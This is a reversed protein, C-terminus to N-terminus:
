RLRSGEAFGRGGLKRRPPDIKGDVVQILRRDRSRKFVVALPYALGDVHSIYLHANAEATFDPPKVEVVGAAEDAALAVFPM